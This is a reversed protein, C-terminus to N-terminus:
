GWAFVKFKAGATVTVEVNTTTHTGEAIDPMKDGTAGLGDHGETPVVLVIAPVVALGHAVNQASGTATQETSAFALAKAKTVAAAAIKATEVASAALHAPDIAGDAIHESDVADDAIKTGNVADAGLKATTVAGSALESTGVSGAALDAADLTADLNAITVKGTAASIRLAEKRKGLHKRDLVEFVLDEKDQKQIVSM